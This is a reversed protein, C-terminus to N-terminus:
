MPPEDLEKYGDIQKILGQFHGALAQYAEPSLDGGDWTREIAQLHKLVPEQLDGPFDRPVIDQAQSLFRRNDRREFFKPNRTLAAVRGAEAWLGLRFAPLDGLLEQVEKEIRDIEPAARDLAAPDEMKASANTAREGLPGGGLTGTLEIGLNQLRGRTADFSQRRLSLRLDVLYVGAMFDPRDFSLGVEDEGGRMADPEYLDSIEAREEIPAAMSALTIQPTSFSRWTFFGLGAALVFSAALPLMWHLMRRPARDQEGSLPPFPLVGRGGTDKASPEEKQFHVAGSFVEYCSECHALHETVREREAASLMGDLFAALDELPPCGDMPQHTDISSSMM